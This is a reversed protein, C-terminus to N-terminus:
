PLAEDREEIINAGWALHPPGNNAYKIGLLLELGVTFRRQPEGEPPGYVVVIEASGTHPSNSPASITFDAIENGSLFNTGLMKGAGRQLYGIMESRKKKPPSRSGIQVDYKEVSYKIPGSGFNRIQLVFNMRNMVNPDWAAFFGEYILAWRYDHHPTIVRPRLRDRLTLVGIITWLLSLFIGIAIQVPPRSFFELTVSQAVAILALIASMVVAWNTTLASVVNAAFGGMPGLGRLFAQIGKRESM